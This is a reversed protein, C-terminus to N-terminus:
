GVVRDGSGTVAGRGMAGVRGSGLASGVGCGRGSGSALTLQEEGVWRGFGARGAVRGYDGTAAGRQAVGLRGSGSMLVVGYGSGSV